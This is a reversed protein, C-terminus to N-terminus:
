DDVNTGDFRPIKVRLSKLLGHLERNDSEVDSRRRESREHDRVTSDGQGVAMSLSPSVQAIREETKTTHKELLQKFNEMQLESHQEWKM